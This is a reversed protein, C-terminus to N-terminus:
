DANPLENYMSKAEEWYIDLGSVKGQMGSWHARVALV